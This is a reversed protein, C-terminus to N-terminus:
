EMCSPLQITAPDPCAVDWGAAWAGDYWHLYKEAWSGVGLLPPDLYLRYPPLNSWPVSSISQKEAAFVLFPHPLNNLSPSYLRHQQSGPLCILLQGSTLGGLRKYEWIFIALMNRASIGTLLTWFSSVLVASTPCPLGCSLYHDSMFTELGEFGSM